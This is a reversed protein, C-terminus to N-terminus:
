TPSEEHRQSGAITSRSVAYIKALERTAEGKALRQRAEKIQHPNLKPKRGMNVRKDRALQRGEHTRKVVRLREDEALASLMAM